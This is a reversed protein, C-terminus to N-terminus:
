LNEAEQFLRTAIETRVNGLEGMNTNALIATGTGKGPDFMLLNNIGPDNGLHGWVIRGDDLKKEQWCLGVNLNRKTLMLKITDEQLIRRGKFMGKNLYCRIYNSFQKISSRLFGDPFNPHNYFCNPAHGDPEIVSDLTPGTERIVGLPRGGWAPGRPKGNEVWTYPIAHTSIDINRIYWSTNNMELPKFIHAQCYEEFDQGSLKEVLIALLGFAVNCYSESLPRSEGPKWPHFNKKPEYKDTGPTFYAGHWVELSDKPDGCAYGKGYAPGDAISSTHTLLHDFTIKDEPYEPHKVEFSLYQNIGDDLKFKGQEWLQMIATTVFTKSISGINEVHDTTMGINKKIDAYGYSHSWVIRNDKVICTSLGPIRVDQMRKEIYTDLESGQTVQNQNKSCGFMLGTTTLGTFALFERRNMSLKKTM